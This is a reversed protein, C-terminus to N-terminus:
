QICIINGKYNIKKHVFKGCLVMYEELKKLNLVM